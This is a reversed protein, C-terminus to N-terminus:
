KVGVSAAWDNYANIMQNQKDYNEGIENKLETPDNQLNYLEWAEGDKSVLKWDGIRVAKNGEHEWFLPSEVERTQGRFVPVLSQGSALKISVGKYKEPYNAGAIDCCTAMLDRITGVQNKIAGKNEIVKPWKAVLPTIIGGEHVWHKFMRYPTNSLNAWSRGYSHYSDGTGPVADGDWFNGWFDQGNKGGEACGGNDSLFLVLTNENEGMKDLKDMVRGIGIDMRYIQAAYISMLLDMKDKEADSLDEWADIMEDRESMELDEDVIGMKKMRALRKKRLVDWGKRFKGRFRKIDEPPAHLPWHPATYALYLFFPQEKQLATELYALANETIFDTMYFSDQGPIYATSDKAFIRNVNKNKTKTIDFYNAAGSILGHFNDFGRDIPWNPREEGVHWKGSAATYYGAEKLVEAITVCENNLYGQYPGPQTNGSHVMGGMGAEHPYLGTLLSARTPCCRAANYFNTFRIGEEALRDINPTEMEGGYCGIDSYGMDDALIIIINPQTKSDSNGQFAFCTTTWNVLIFAILIHRIIKM